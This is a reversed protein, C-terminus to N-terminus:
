ATVAKQVRVYRFCDDHVCRVAKRMKAGRPIPQLCLACVVLADRKQVTVPKLSLANLFKHLRLTM